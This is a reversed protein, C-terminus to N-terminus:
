KKQKWCTIGKKSLSPGFFQFHWNLSFNPVLVLELIFSETSVKMKEIKSQFSEKQPYIQELFFCFQKNSSFNPVYVLEFMYLEITIKWRERKLDSINNKIMLKSWFKWKLSFNPVQVIKFVYHETTINVKETKSSQM